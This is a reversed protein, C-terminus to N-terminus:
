IETKGFRRSQILAGLARYQGHKAYDASSDAKGMLTHIRM